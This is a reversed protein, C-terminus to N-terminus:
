LAYLYYIWCAASCLLAIVVWPWERKFEAIDQMLRNGLIGYHVLETVFYGILLPLASLLGVTITKPNIWAPALEALALLPLAFGFALATLTALIILLFAATFHTLEIYV